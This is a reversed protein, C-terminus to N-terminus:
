GAAAEYKSPCKALLTDAQFTGDPGLSGEVVVDAGDVFTDPVIGHYVVPLTSRGDTMVFTVDQGTPLRVITGAEVKGNVRFGGGAAAPDALFETVDLYYVFGGPRNVAFVVLAVMSLAIGVGLSVFKVRRRDL